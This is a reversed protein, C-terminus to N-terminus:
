FLSFSFFFSGKSRGLAVLNQDGGSIVVLPTATPTARAIGINTPVGSAILAKNEDEGGGGLVRM